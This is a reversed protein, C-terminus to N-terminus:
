EKLKAILISVFRYVSHHKQHLFLSPRSYNRHGPRVSSRPCLKVPVTHYQVSILFYMHSDSTPRGYQIMPDSSHMDRRRRSASLSITRLFCIKRVFWFPLHAVTFCPDPYTLTLTSTPDTPSSVSENIM